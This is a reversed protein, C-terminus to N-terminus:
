PLPQGNVLAEIDKKIDATPFRRSYRRVPVGNKDVLFKEFNWSVDSRKVPSWIIALPDAMLVEGDDGVPTPLVSKMYAFLPLENAGNIDTRAFMPFNPKYGNGPRILELQPLIEDANNNTQHGFQNSPFGLCTFGASSFEATLSNMGEFDSM